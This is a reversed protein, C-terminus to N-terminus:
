TARAYSLCQEVTRVSGVTTASHLSTAAAAHALEIADEIPWSEHLGYLLGATFADGAGVTGVLEEKPVYVSETMITKKDRQVCVSGAPFHVVVTHMAGLKMIEVAAQECLDKQAQGGSLTEIGALGGIEQDNVILTDLYPLCPLCLQRNRQPDITVLEINTNLGAAKAKKLVSVWGNTDNHWPSDLTAHVGLLGLHLWKAPTDEFDFHDPTLADNAGAYHFFTRKASSQVSMVDTFSTGHNNTRILGTTDIGKSQAQEFLFDGEADLGILGMGYVPLAPDLSKLDMSVNHASGGGQHDQSIIQALSEEAPWQNIIKIRDFTWCGACIIGRDM